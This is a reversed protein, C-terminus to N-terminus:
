YQFNGALLCPALPQNACCSDLPLNQIGRGQLDYSIGKDGTGGGIGRVKSDVSGNPDGQNGSGGAIGESISNTGANKSNALANKTRNMIDTQRQQEAEVRKREIEEQKKQIKEAELQERIKKDAEIKELRKKKVDPDIKKVAPAEETNQTILPDEAAKKATAVPKVSASIKEQVAPPSPEILGLGTEGTGFNVMIGEDEVRPPAEVTFTFFVLLSLLALHILITGVIGRGKESPFRPLESNSSHPM